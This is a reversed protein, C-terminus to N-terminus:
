YSRPGRMVWVDLDDKASVRVTATPAPMTQTKSTGAEAEKMATEGREPLTKPNPRVAHNSGGDEDPERDRSTTTVPALHNRGKSTEAASM